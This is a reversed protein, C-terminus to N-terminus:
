WFCEKEDSKNEPECVRVSDCQFGRQARKKKETKEKKEKTPCIRM